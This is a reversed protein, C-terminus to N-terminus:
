DWLKKNSRVNWAEIYARRGDDNPVVYRVGEHIVREVAAPAIRKASISGPLFVALFLAPVFAIRLHSINTM